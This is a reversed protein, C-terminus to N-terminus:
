LFNSNSKPFKSTDNNISSLKIAREAILLQRKMNPKLNVHEYQEPFM